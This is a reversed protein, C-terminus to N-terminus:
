EVSWSTTLGHIAGPVVPPISILTPFHSGQFPQVFVIIKMEM